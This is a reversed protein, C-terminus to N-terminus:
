LKLCILTNNGTVKHQLPFYILYLYEIQNPPNVFIGLWSCFCFGVKLGFIIKHQTGLM